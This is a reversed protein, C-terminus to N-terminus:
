AWEKIGVLGWLACYTEHRRCETHNGLSTSLCFTCNMAPRYGRERLVIRKAIFLLRPAVAAWRPDGGDYGDLVIHAIDRAWTEERARRDARQQAERQVQELTPRWSGQCRRWHPDSDYAVRPTPFFGPVRQQRLYHYSAAASWKFEPAEHLGIGKWADSLNRWYASIVLHQQTRCVSCTAM